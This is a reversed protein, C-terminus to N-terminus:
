TLVCAGSPYKRSHCLAPCSWTSQMMKPLLKPGLNSKGTLSRLEVCLHCMRDANAIHESQLRASAWCLFLFQLQQRGKALEAILLPRNLNRKGSPAWIALRPLPRVGVFTSLRRLQM